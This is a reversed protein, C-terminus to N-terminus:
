KSVTYMISCTYFNHTIKLTRTGVTNTFFGQLTAGDNLLEQLTKSIRNGNKDTYSKTGDKNIEYIEPSTFFCRGAENSKLIEAVYNPEIWGEDKDKHIVFDKNITYKWATSANIGSRTAGDPMDDPLDEGEDQTISTKIWCILDSNINQAPPTYRIDCGVFVFSASCILIFALFINLFKKM